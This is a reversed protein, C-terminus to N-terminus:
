AALADQGSDLGPIAQLVARSWYEYGAGNPHFDDPGFKGTWPPTFHRSIYAVPLGRTRAAAHIATNVWAVYPAAFRGVRWRSEPIPIDLLVSNAPLAAALEHFQTRVRSGPLRFLDNTGVGCSVLDPRVPLAALRSLQERFVTQITAGSASLNLVRWPQGTRRVLEAQAQTVYGETPHDAGLGQAASDGLVVWLPGRGALARDNHRRWYEAFVARHARIYAVGDCWTRFPSRRSALGPDHADLGPVAPGAAGPATTGPSALRTAATAILELATRTPRSAEHPGTPGLGAGARAATRTGRRHPQLRTPRHRSDSM